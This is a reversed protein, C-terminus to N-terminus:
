AFGPAIRPRRNSDPAPQCRPCRHSSRNAFPERVVPRGCRPCPEGARGYVALERAFWGAAGSVDVYTADFSTGGAALAATMVEQTAAILGRVRAPSVSSAPREPHLRARWLAEDAYINGIGSVVRQDLLVRKVGSSSARLRRTLAGLDLHPDLPDRAVHAVRTPLAALEAGRGGPRGDGTPVLDDVVAYGFTRQDVLDLLRGDTLYLRARLHPHRTGDDTRVLVQGTMGLHVLLAEDPEATGGGDLLLWCYKGRRVAHTLTRGTLRATLEDPGGAQHRVVSDRLVEAGTVTRGLVHRALGDRVTEVEPLEPM